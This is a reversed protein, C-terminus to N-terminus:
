QGGGDAVSASSGADGTCIGMAQYGQLEQLCQVDTLGSTATEACSSPDNTYGCCATLLDCNSPASNSVCASASVLGASVALGVLARRLLFNM